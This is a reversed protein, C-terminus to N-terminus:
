AGEAMKLKLVYLQEFFYRKNAVLAAELGEAQAKDKVEELGSLSSILLLCRGEPSLHDKLDEIFRFITDRGGKGGDLAYDIWGGTREEEATPLYPPNFIVLDFKARLGNFLDARVVDLGYGKALRAAYPNIDTALLSRVLPILERSILGRGCGIEIARDEPRAEDIAAKLLLFTDEAPEYIEELLAEPSTERGSQPQKLNHHESNKQM